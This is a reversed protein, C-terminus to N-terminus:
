NPFLDMSGFCLWSVGKSFKLFIVHPFDSSEGTTLATLQSTRTFPVSSLPLPLTQHAWLTGAFCIQSPCVSNIMSHLSEHCERSDPFEPLTALCASLALGQDICIHWRQSCKVKCDTRLASWCWRSNLAPTVIWM